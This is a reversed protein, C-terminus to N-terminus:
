SIDRSEPSQVAQRAPAVKTGRRMPSEADTSLWRWADALTDDLPRTTFGLDRRAKQTSIDFAKALTHV